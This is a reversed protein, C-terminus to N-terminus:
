AGVGRAGGDGGDPLVGMGAPTRGLYRGAVLWLTVVVAFAVVAAAGPLGLAAILAVWLPAFVVGGMSAGNFAMSLAAPRRRVFWPSVIANLAAGSTMAWGAGSLPTAAFLQWPEQALAWGLLGLATLVAGARTVAKVGFRRHLVALNAVVAAGLLFHATIAASVLSIPWGRAAHLTQLFIPPGWFGIGWAFVAITLAGGVVHWGFFM